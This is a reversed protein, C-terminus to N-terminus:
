HRVRMGKREGKRKRGGDIGGKGGASERGGEEM